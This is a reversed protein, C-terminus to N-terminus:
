MKPRILKAWEAKCMDQYLQASVRQGAAVVELRAAKVLRSREFEPYQQRTEQQHAKGRRNARATTVIAWFMPHGPQSADLATLMGMAFIPHRAALFFNSFTPACRPSTYGGNMAFRMDYKIGEDRTKM